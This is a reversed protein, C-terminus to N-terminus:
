IGRAKLPQGLARSPRLSFITLNIQGGYTQPALFDTKRGNLLGSFFVDGTCWKSGRNPIVHKHRVLM